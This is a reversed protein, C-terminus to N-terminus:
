NISKPTAMTFNDEETTLDDLPGLTTGSQLGQLYRGSAINEYCADIEGLAKKLVDPTLTKNECHALLEDYLDNRRGFHLEEHELLDETSIMIVEEHNESM